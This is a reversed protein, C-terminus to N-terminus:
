RTCSSASLSRSTSGRVAPRLRKAGAAALRHDGADAAPDGRLRAAGAVRQQVAAGHARPRPHALGARLLGQRQCDIQEDSLLRREKSRGSPDGIRATYDGIILVGTHGQEQFARMRQLPIANGVHIDRRRRTSASSSAFRGARPWSASSSARPCCRSPMAPSRPSTPCAPSEVRGPAPPPERVALGPRPVAVAARRGQLHRRPRDRGGRPRRDPPRLDARGAPWGRARRGAGPRGPRPRQDARAAAPRRAARRM